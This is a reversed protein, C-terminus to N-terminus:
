RVAAVDARVPNMPTPMARALFDEMAIYLEINHQEKTFGHGEFRKVFPEPPANDSRLARMMPWYQKHIESAPDFEGHIMLVPADIRDALDLPSIERLGSVDKSPAGIYKDWWNAVSDRYGGPNRPNVRTRDRHLRPLDYFGSYGIGFRYLEPTKALGILAAYGGYGAGYIGVNEPDAIGQEVAWAVADSLDDQMARGWNKFGAAKFVYGYGASGRYNVQLVSYGRDALFQVEPNFRWIDRASYPSGHVRVIMPAPKDDQDPARTLYGRLILGDRAKFAIPQSRRMRAPDIWPRTALMSRLARTERDFYHYVDPARDSWARVVFHRWGDDWSVVEKETDPLLKDLAAQIAAGEDGLFVTDQTATQYRFYMPTGDRASVLMSGFGGVDYIPDTHVPEHFEGTAPDMRYLAMRDSGARASVWLHRNDVDFGHVQVWNAEDFSLVSRFEDAESDRYYLDYRLDDRVQGRGIAARVRGEHDAHWEMFNMRGRAVTTIWGSELDLRSAAPFLGSATHDNVMAFGPQSPVDDVYTIDCAFNYNGTGGLTSAGVSYMPMGIARNDSGDPRVSFLAQYTMSLRKLDEYGRDVRYIIRGDRSWTHWRVDGTELDTIISAADWKGIEVVMLNRADPFKATTRSMSLYRGDPSIQVDPQHARSQDLVFGAAVVGRNEEGPPAARVPSDGIPKSSVPNRFFDAVPISSPEAANALSSVSLLFVAAVIPRAKTTM